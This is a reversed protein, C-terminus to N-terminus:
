DHRKKYWELFLGTTIKLKQTKTLEVGLHKAGAKSMEDVKNYIEQFVPANRATGYQVTSSVGRIGAAKVAALGGQQLGRAGMVNLMTKYVALGYHGSRQVLSLKPDMSKVLDEGGSANYVFDVFKKPNQVMDKFGKWYTETAITKIDSATGKVTEWGIDIPHTIIDKGAIAIDKAGQGVDKATGIVTDVLIKGKSDIVDKIASKTEDKITTIVPIVVSGVDKVGQKVDEKASKATNIIQSTWSNMEDNAKKQEDLLKKAKERAEKRRKEKEAAEKKAKEEAEKKEKETQEKTKGEPKKKKDDPGTPKKPPPVPKTPPAPPVPPPVKGGGLIGSILGGLVGVLGPAVVGIVGKIVDEPGPVNGVQGLGPIDGEPLPADVTTNGSADTTTQSGVKGDANVNITQEASLQAENDFVIKFQNPVGREFACEAVFSNNSYNIYGQVASGGMSRLISAATIKTKSRYIGTVVVKNAISDYGYDTVTIEVRDPEEEKPKEGLVEIPITIDLNLATSAFAALGQRGSVGAERKIEDLEGDAVDYMEHIVYVAGLYKKIRVRKGTTEPSYDGWITDEVLDSETITIKFSTSGDRMAKSSYSGDQYSSLYCLRYQNCNNAAYESGSCSATVDITVPFKVNNAAINCVAGLPGSRPNVVASVGDITYQMPFGGELKGEVKLQGYVAPLLSIFFGAFLICRLILGAQAQWTNYFIKKM